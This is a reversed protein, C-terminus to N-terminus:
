IYTLQAISCIIRDHEMASILLRKATIAAQSFAEWPPQTSTPTFRESTEALPSTYFATTLLSSHLFKKLMTNLIFNYRRHREAPLSHRCFSSRAFFHTGAMARSSSVEVSRHTRFLTRTMRHSRQTLDTSRTM